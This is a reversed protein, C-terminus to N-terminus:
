NYMDKVQANMAVEKLMTKIAIEANEKFSTVVYSDLYQVRM